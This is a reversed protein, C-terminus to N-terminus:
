RPYEKEYFNEIEATLMGPEKRLLCAWEDRRLCLHLCPTRDEYLASSFILLGHLCNYIVGDHASIDIDDPIEMGMKATKVFNM